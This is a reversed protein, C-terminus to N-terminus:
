GNLADPSVPQPFIPQHQVCPQFKRYPASARIVEPHEFLSDLLAAVLSSALLLDSSCVDAAEHPQQGIEM